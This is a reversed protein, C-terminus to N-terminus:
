PPRWASLLGVSRCRAAPRARGAPARRGGAARAPRAVAQAAARAGAEQSLRTSKRKLKPVKPLRERPLRVLPGSLLRRGERMGWIRGLRDRSRRSMRARATVKAGGDKSPRLHPPPRDGRAHRSGAPSRADPKRLVREIEDVPVGYVKAVQAVTMGYKVWTRIRALQSAPIEGSVPPQPGPLSRGGRASGGGGGSARAPAPAQSSPPRGPRRLRRRPLERNRPSCRRPQKARGNSGSAIM